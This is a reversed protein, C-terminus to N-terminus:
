EGTNKNSSVEVFALRLQFLTEKILKEEEVTLNGRTKEELMAILDITQRAGNMDLYPEADPAKVLGMQFLATNALSIVFSPFDLPKAERKQSPEAKPETRKEEPGTESKEPEPPASAEAQVTEPESKSEGEETFRRRDRVKFADKEEHEEM